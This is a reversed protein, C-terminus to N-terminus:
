KNLIELLFDTAVKSKMKSLNRVAEKKLAADTEQRAVSVLAEADRKMYLAHIVQKRIEPNTDSRYIAVLPESPAQRGEHGYRDIAHARLEVDSESRGIELLRDLDKADGMATIIEKKVETSTERQYLQRLEDGARLGGLRRAAYARLKPDQEGQAAERLHEVDKADRFSRLIRRKVEADSTSAYIEALVQRNEEGKFQGLYRLARLQLDPNFHGRAAQRVLERAHPPDSQALVFLARIRLQPSYSGQLYRELFPLAREPDARLLGRLALLRLEDDIEEEPNVAQGAAQQIEVELAKADNLWRSQPYSTRLESLTALAEDRQGLRNQAYAKWHLSGEARKGKRGAIESFYAIAREWQGENLAKIARKYLADERMRTLNRQTIRLRVRAAQMAEHAKDMAERPPLPPTPPAPEQAYSEALAPSVGEGVSEMAYALEFLDAEMAHPAFSIESIEPLAFDLEPLGIDLDIDLDIDIDPLAFEIDPWEVDLVLPAISPHLLPSSLEGVVVPAAAPVRPKGVAPKAPKPAKPKEQAAAPAAGLLTVVSLLVATRIM